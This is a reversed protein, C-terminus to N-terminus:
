GLELLIEDFDNLIFLKDDYLVFHIIDFLNLLFIAITLFIVIALLLKIYNVNKVVMLATSAMLAASATLANM